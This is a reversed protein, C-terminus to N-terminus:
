ANAVAPDTQNGHFSYSGSGFAANGQDRLPPEIDHEVLEGDQERIGGQIEVWHASSRLLSNALDPSLLYIKQPVLRANHGEEALAYCLQRPPGVFKLAIEGPM